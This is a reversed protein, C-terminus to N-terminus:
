RGTEEHRVRELEDALVAMAEADRVSLEGWERAGMMRWVSYMEIWAVSEGRIVSRPCQGSVVDGHGWVIRGDAPAWGQWACRRRKELGQRRCQECDWGAPNRRHFHFALILKKKRRREVPM